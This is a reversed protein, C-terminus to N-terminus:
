FWSRVKIQSELQAVREGGSKTKEDLQEQLMRKNAEYEQAQRICVCVYVTARLACHM